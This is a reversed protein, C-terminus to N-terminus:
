VRISRANEERNLQKKNDCPFDKIWEMKCNQLGVLDFLNCCSTFGRRGEKWNKYDSKHRSWRKVMDCTSGIYIKNTESCKVFYIVAKSYDINHLTM